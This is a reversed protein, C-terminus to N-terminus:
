TGNKVCVVRPVYNLDRHFYFNSFKLKILEQRLLADQGEGFEIVFTGNKKL